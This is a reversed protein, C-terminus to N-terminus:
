RMKIDAELPNLAVDPGRLVTSFSLALKKEKRQAYYVMERGHQGIFWKEHGNQMEVTVGARALVPFAVKMGDGHQGIMRDDDVQFAHMTTRGRARSRNCVLPSTSM